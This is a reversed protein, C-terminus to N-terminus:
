ISGIRGRESSNSEDALVIVFLDDAVVEITPNKITPLPVKGRIPQDAQQPDPGVLFGV